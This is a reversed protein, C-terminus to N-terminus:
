YAAACDQMEAFDREKDRLKAELAKLESRSKELAERAPQPRTELSRITDRLADNEEMWRGLENDLAVNQKRMKEQELRLGEVENEKKRM